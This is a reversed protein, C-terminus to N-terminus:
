CGEGGVQGDHVGGGDVEVLITKLLLPFTHTLLHILSPVKDRTAALMQAQVLFLTLCKPCPQFLRLSLQFPKSRLNGITLPQQQLDLFKLHTHLRKQIWKIRWVKEREM